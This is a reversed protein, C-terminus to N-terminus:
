MGIYKVYEPISMREKQPGTKTEESISTQTAMEYGAQEVVKLYDEVVSRIKEDKSKLLKPTKPASDM